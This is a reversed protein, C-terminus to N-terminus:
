KKKSSVAAFVLVIVAIIAMVVFIGAMGQWTITLADFLDDLNVNNKLLELFKSM